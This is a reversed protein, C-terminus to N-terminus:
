ARAMKKPTFLKELKGVREEIMKRWKADHGKREYNGEFDKKLEMFERDLGDLHDLVLKFGTDVKSELRDMRSDLGDMRSDLGDMRSDLKDIKGGLESGLKDIKRELISHGEAVAKIQGSMDELLVIMRDKKLNKKNKIKRM